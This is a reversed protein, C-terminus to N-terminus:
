KKLLRSLHAKLGEDVSLRISVKEERETLFIRFAREASLDICYDYRKKMTRCRENLSRRNDKCEDAIERIDSLAVRCVTRRRKGQTEIVVLDVGDGNETLIYRYDRLLYRGAVTVVVAAFVALLFELLHRYPKMFPLPLLFLDSLFAVTFVATVAAAKLNQRKAKCNYIM